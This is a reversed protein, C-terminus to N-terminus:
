SSPPAMTAGIAEGGEGTDQREVHGGFHNHYLLAALWLAGLLAAILLLVDLVRWRRRARRGTPETM